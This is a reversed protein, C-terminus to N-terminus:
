NGNSLYAITLVNVKYFNNDTDLSIYLYMIM